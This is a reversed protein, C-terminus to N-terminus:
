KLKSLLENLQDIEKNSLLDSIAREHEAKDKSVQKLLKLGRDTIRARNSRRDFDSPFKELLNKKELRDILRSADSMKDALSDRVQQISLSEPSKAALIALINYQKPTIGFPQLFTRSLNNMWSASQFLRYRLEQIRNGASAVFGPKDPQNTM